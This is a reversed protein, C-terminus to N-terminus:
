RALLAALNAGNLVGGDTACVLEAAGAQQRPTISTTRDSTM